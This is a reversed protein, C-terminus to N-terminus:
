NMVTSRVGNDFETIATVVSLVVVESRIEIGKERREGERGDIGGKGVDGFSEGGVPGIAAEEASTVDAERIAATADLSGNLICALDAGGFFLDCNPIVGALEAVGILREERWEAIVYNNAVRHAPICSVCGRKALILPYQHAIEGM